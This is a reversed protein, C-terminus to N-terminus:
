LNQYEIREADSWLDELRYFKRTKKYFIHVVTSFYDILVWLSNKTGEMHNPLINEEKLKKIIKDAIANVQTNSNGECIIFFDSPAEELKRLDLKVINEGKTDLISDIIIQNIAEISIEENLIRKKQSTM